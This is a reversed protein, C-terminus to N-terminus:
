DSPTSTYHHSLAVPSLDARLTFDTGAQQDTVGSLLTNGIGTVTGLADVYAAIAVKSASVGSITVTGIPVTGDASPLGAATSTTGSATAPDTLAVGVSTLALGRPAVARLAGFLKAWDVDTAVLTSLQSNIAKSQTQASIVEQYVRQQQRLILAESEAVEVRDQEVSSRYTAIGYGAALLVLATVLAILVVWRIRTVQRQEIVEPPLLNATLTLLRAASGGAPSGDPPSVTTTTM